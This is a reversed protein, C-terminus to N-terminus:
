TGVDADEQSSSWATEFFTGSDQDDDNIFAQLRGEGKFVQMVASDEDYRDTWAKRKKSIKSSTAQPAPNFGGENSVHAKTTLVVNEATKPLRSGCYGLSCSRAIERVTPHFHHLLCSLEWAASRQASAIDPDVAKMNYEETLGSEGFLKTGRGGDVNRGGKQVFIPAVLSPDLLLQSAKLLGITSVHTPAAGAAQVCLRRALAAARPAPVHRFSHASLIAEMSDFTLSEADMDRTDLGYLEGISSYLTTDMARTDSTFSDPDTQQSRAHLGLIAYAVSLCRFRIALPYRPAHLMPTLAAIIAEIVDTNVYRSVVLLGRLASSLAPPPKKLRKPNPKGTKKNINPDDIVDASAAKVINFCAHCVSDLLSKRAGYMEGATADADGEALDRELGDEEPTPEEKKSDKKRDKRNYRQSKKRENKAKHSRPLKAFGAFHIESLPTVVEEPVARAKGAAATTLQKAIAVCTQLTHGSAKHANGLLETLAECCLQRIQPERDSVLICVTSVLLDADNFHPLSRLLEALSKCAAQRVDTMDKAAPTASNGAARWRSLSICSRIFRQYGSLLAQEFSRLQSIEKSVKVEAEKETIPRIRYAPALDKYVQSETLIVLSAVRGKHQVAMQRLQKLKAVNKDPNAIIASALSAIEGRAEEFSQLKQAYSELRQRTRKQSPRQKLSVPAPAAAAADAKKRQAALTSPPPINSGSRVMATLRGGLGNQPPPAAASLSRKRPVDLVFTPRNGSGTNNVRRVVGNQEITPLSSPKEKPQDFYRTTEWEPVAAPRTGRKRRKSPQMEEPPPVSPM